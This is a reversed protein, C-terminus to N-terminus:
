MEVVKIANELSVSTGSALLTSCANVMATCSGVPDIMDDLMEYDIGDSWALAVDRKSADSM